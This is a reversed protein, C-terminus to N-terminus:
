QLEKIFERAKEKLDDLSGDNIIVYDYDYNEVEADAHNTDIQKVNPNKILLTKCGFSQVFRSIEEPERSHIFLINDIDNSRFKEIVQKIYQFPHDLNKTGIDKIDSLAKRHQETKEGTWGLLKYADKVKDVTSISKCKTYFSCFDCFQNKGVEASGNIIIVTKNM